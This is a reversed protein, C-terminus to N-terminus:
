RPRVAPAPDAVRACGALPSTWGQQCSVQVAMERVWESVAAHPLLGASARYNLGDLVERYPGMGFLRFPVIVVDRGARAESDVFTRIEREAEIRKDAWDERLTAVEVSRSRTELGRAAARMRALLRDNEAEDGVGHALLLVAQSGGEAGAERVRDAVITRLEPWDSLGDQHTAVELNHVIPAPDHHAQGHAVFWAPRDSRLGLLYETQHRFSSGSLFLRVVAVRDVDKVQLEELGSALTAPNAMGFAIATPVEEALPAVAAEIASDWEESGGHAMVLVGVQRDPAPALSPPGKACATATVLALIPLFRYM